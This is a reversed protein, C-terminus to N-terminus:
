DLVAKKLAVFNFSDLPVKAFNIIIKQIFMEFNNAMNKWSNTHFNAFFIFRYKLMPLLGSEISSFGSGHHLDFNISAALIEQFSRRIRQLQRSNKSPYSSLQFILQISPLLQINPLPWSQKV